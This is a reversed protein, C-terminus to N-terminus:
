TKNYLFASPNDILFIAELPMTTHFGCGGYDFRRLVSGFLFGGCAARHPRGRGGFAFPCGVQRAAPNRSHGASSEEPSDRIAM